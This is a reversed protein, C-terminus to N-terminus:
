PRKDGFIDGYFSEEIYVIKTMKSYRTFNFALNVQFINKPSSLKKGKSLYLDTPPEPDPMISIDTEKPM